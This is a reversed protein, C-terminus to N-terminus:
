NWSHIADGYIVEQAGPDKLMDRRSGGSNLLLPHYVDLSKETKTGCRHFYSGRRILDAFDRTAEAAAPCYCSHIASPKSGPM